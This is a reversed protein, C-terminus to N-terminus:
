DFMTFMGELREWIKRPVRLEPPPVTRGAPQKSDSRPVDAGEGRRPCRGSRGTWWGSKPCHPPWRAISGVGGSSCSRCSTPSGPTAGWTPSAACVRWCTPPASHTNTQQAHAVTVVFSLFQVTIRLVCMKKRKKKKWDRRVRLHRAVVSLPMDTQLVSRHLAHTSPIRLRLHCPHPLSGM